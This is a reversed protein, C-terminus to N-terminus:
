IDLEIRIYVAEEDKGVRRRDLRGDLEFDEPRDKNYHREMEELFLEPRLKEKHKEIIQFAIIRARLSHFIADRYNHNMYLERAKQQHAIAQALGYKIGPISQVDTLAMASRCIIYRADIQVQDIKSPDIRQDLEEGSPSILKYRRETDNLLYESPVRVGKEEIARCALERARLSHYIADYISLALNYYTAKKQHAMALVVYHHNEGAIKKAQNVARGTRMSISLVDSSLQNAGTIPDKEYKTPPALPDAAFVGSLGTIFLTILILGTLKNLYIM